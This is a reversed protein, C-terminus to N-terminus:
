LNKAQEIEVIVRRCNYPLVHLEKARFSDM